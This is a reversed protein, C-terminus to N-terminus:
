RVRRVEVFNSPIYKLPLSQLVGIKLEEKTAIAFITFTEGIGVGGEGLQAKGILEDKFKRTFLKEQTWMTRQPTKVIIYIFQDEVGRVSVKVDTALGAIDVETKPYFVELKALKPSVLRESTFSDIFFLGLFILIGVTLRYIIDKLYKDKM